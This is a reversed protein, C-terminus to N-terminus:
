RSCGRSTPTSGSRSRSSAGTPPRPEARAPRGAHRPGGLPRPVRAPPRGHRGAFSPRRGALADASTSRDRRRTRGGALRLTSCIRPTASSCVRSGAAARHRREGVRDPVLRRRRADGHDGPGAPERGLGRRARARRRGLARRCPATPPTSVPDEPPPVHATPPSPGVTCGSTSARGDPRRHVARRGGEADRTRDLRPAMAVAAALGDIDERLFGTVGEDVLEPTSGCPTAVVPTGCAMSEVIVM